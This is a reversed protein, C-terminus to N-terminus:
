FSINEKREVQIDGDLISNENEEYPIELSISQTHIADKTEVTLDFNINQNLNFINFGLERILTGNYALTNEKPIQYNKSLETVLRLTIPNSCDQFFVPINYNQMDEKNESNIVVYELRKEICYDPKLDSNGFDNPNLYYVDVNKLSAIFNELYIKTIYSKESSNMRNLYIAIDTYQYVRLNWEPNQYSTTNSIANASSYYIAKHIIFEPSTALTDPISKNKTFPFISFIAVIIVIFFLIFFLLKKKV